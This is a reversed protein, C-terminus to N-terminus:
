STAGFSSSGRSPTAMAPAVVLAILFGVLECGPGGLLSAFVASLGGTLYYAFYAGLMFFAAHAFNLIGMMSFILTLGSSLMFLLMGYLVGNFVSFIVSEM